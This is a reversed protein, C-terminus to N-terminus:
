CHLPPPGEGVIVWEGIWLGWFPLCSCLLPLEKRLFIFAWEKTVRVTGGAKVSLDGPPSARRQHLRQCLSCQVPSVSASDPRSGELMLAQSYSLVPFSSPGKLLKSKEFSTTLVASSTRAGSGLFDLQTIEDMSHHSDGEAAAPAHLPLLTTRWLGWSQRWEKTEQVEFSFEASSSVM